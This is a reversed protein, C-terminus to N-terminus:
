NSNKQISYRINSNCLHINLYYVMFIFNQHYFSNDVEKFYTAVELTLITKKSSYTFFCKVM